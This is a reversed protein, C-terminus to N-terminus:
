DDVIDVVNCARYFVCKAETGDSYKAEPLNEDLFKKVKQLM